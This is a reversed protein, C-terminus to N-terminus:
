KKDTDEQDIFRFTFLINSYINGDLGKTLFTEIRYIHEANELYVNETESKKYSYTKMGKFLGRIEAGMVVRNFYGIQIKPGQEFVKRKIMRGIRIYGGPTYNYKGFVDPRNYVEYELELSECISGASADKIKWVQDQTNKPYRIEFGCQEDRYVNWDSTDLPKELPLIEETSTIRAIDYMALEDPVQWENSTSSVTSSAAGDTVPPTRGGWVCGAGLLTLGFLITVPILRM